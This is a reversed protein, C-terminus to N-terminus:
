NTPNVKVIKIHYSTVSYIIGKLQAFSVKLDKIEDATLALNEIHLPNDGIQANELYDDVAQRWQPNQEKPIVVTPKFNSVDADRFEPIISIRVGLGRERTISLMEYFRGYKKEPSDLMELLYRVSQNVRLYISQVSMNPFKELSYVRDQRDSMMSDFVDKMELGFREKYYPAQSRKGWGPPKKRVVLDVVASATKPNVFIQNIRQQADDYSM